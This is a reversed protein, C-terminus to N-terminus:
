AGIFSTTRLSTPTALRTKAILAAPFSRRAAALSATTQGGNVIQFDSISAIRLGEATRTLEVTSATAAIGNNYAFFMEPKHLVTNRIGKNVKGKTSLFARVNGELLRSGFEDYIDALLQGPIVCLYSLYTGGETSAELCPLGGESRRLDILLEDQGSRSSYARFFRAIDWIHFEIPVGNVEGEPWDRVRTSLTADTLLYARIRAINQGRNRLDDALARAPNNDDIIEELIGDMADEVFTRLKGFLAKAETQILTMEERGCPDALFLRVSGDARDFAYGDIGVNRKRASVGRYYCPEFDSVEGADELYHVCVDVFSSHRFNSDASAWVDVESLFEKRFEDIDM